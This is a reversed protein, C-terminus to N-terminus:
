VTDAFLSLCRAALFKRQLRSSLVAIEGASDLDNYPHRAPRSLCAIPASIQRLQFFSLRNRGRTPRRKTPGGSGLDFGWSNGGPGGSRPVGDKTQRPLPCKPDTGPKGDAGGRNLGMGIRAMRERHRTAIRTIGAVVGAVIGWESRSSAAPLRFFFWSSQRTTPVWVM